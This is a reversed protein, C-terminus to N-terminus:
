AGRTAGALYISGSADTTVANAFDHAATDLQRVWQLTQGEAPAPAAMMVAVIALRLPGAM